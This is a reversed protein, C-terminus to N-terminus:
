LDEGDIIEDMIKKYKKDVHYRLFSNYEEWTEVGEEAMRPYEGYISYYRSILYHTEEPVDNREFYPVNKSLHEHILRKLEQKEEESIACKKRKFLDVM